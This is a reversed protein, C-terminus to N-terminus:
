FIKTPLLRRLLQYGNEFLKSEIQSHELGCIMDSDFWSVIEEFLKQAQSGFM